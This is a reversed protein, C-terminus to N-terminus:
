PSTGPVPALAPQSPPTETSVEAAIIADRLARGRDTAVYGGDSRVLAHRELFRMTNRNYRIQAYGYGGLRYFRKKNWDDMIHYTCCENLLAAQNPSLKM